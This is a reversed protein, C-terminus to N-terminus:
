IDALRYLVKGGIKLFIPGTGESRYKEITSESKQWREALERQTLHKIALTMHSEKGSYTWEGM